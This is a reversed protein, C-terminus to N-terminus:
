NWKWFAFAIYKFKKKEIFIHWASFHYCTNFHESKPGLVNSIDWESFCTPTLCSRQFKILFYLILPWKSQLAMHHCTNSNSDKKRWKRWGTTRPPLLDSNQNAISQQQKQQPFPSNMSLASVPSFSNPSQNHPCFKQRSGISSHNRAFEFSSFMLKWMECHMILQYHWIQDAQPMRMQSVSHSQDWSLLQKKDKQLNLISDLPQPHPACLYAKGGFCWWACGSTKQPFAYM